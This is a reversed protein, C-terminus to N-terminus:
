KRRSQSRRKNDVNKKIDCMREESNQKFKNLMDEFAAEPTLPAKEQVNQKNGGDFRRGGNNNNYPKRVNDKRPPPNDAAKKISLSIKGDEGVSLVKVQVTQGETLFDKI